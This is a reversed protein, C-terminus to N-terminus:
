YLTYLIPIVGMVIYFYYDIFFNFLSPAAHLFIFDIGQNALLHILMRVDSAKLEGLFTLDRQVDDLDDLVFYHFTM